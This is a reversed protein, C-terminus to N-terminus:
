DVHAAVVQGNPAHQAGSPFHVIWIGAPQVPAPPTYRPSPLTQAVAFQGSGGPVQTSSPSAPSKVSVALRVTPSPARVVILLVSLAELSASMCRMWIQSM